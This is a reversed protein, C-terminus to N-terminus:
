IHILSLGELAGPRARSSLSASRGPRACRRGQGHAGAQVRGQHDARRGPQAGHRDQAAAGHGTRVPLGPFGGAPRACGDSSGASARGTAGRASQGGRGGGRRRRSLALRRLGRCARGRPGAVVAMQLSPPFWSHGLSARGRM